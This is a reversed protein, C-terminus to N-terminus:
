PSPAVCGGARCDSLAVDIIFPDNSTVAVLDWRMATTVALLDMCFRVDTGLCLATVIGKRRAMRGIADRLPDTRVSAVLLDGGDERSAFMAPWARWYDGIVLDADFEAAQRALSHGADIVPVDTNAVAVLSAVSVTGVIGCAIWMRAHAGLGALRPTRVPFRRQLWLMSETMAGAVVMLGAAYATFFYRAMYVNIEVWANAGFVAIWAVAMVPCMLYALRLSRPFSARRAVLVGVSALGVILTPWRNTTDVINNAVSGIGRALRAGSFSSYAYSYDYEGFFWLSALRTIAFAAVSAFTAVLVRTRLSARGEGTVLVLPLLLVVSPNVLTATLIATAGVARVRRHEAILAHLGGLYLLTSMAYHQEVMFTYTAPATLLFMALASTAGASCVVTPWSPRPTLRVAHFHVFAGVLLVFAATNIWMQVLYNARIEQVPWAIAPLLNALRDQGWYFFTLRETSMLGYLVSDANAFPLARRLAVTVFVMVVAVGLAITLAGPAPTPATADGAPDVSEHGVGIIDPPDTV